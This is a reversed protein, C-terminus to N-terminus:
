AAVAINCGPNGGALRSDLVGASNCMREPELDSSEDEAYKGHDARDGRALFVRRQLAWPATVCSEQDREGEGQHESPEAERRQVLSRRLFRLAPSYALSVWAPM